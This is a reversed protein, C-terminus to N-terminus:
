SPADTAAVRATAPLLYRAGPEELFPRCPACEIGWLNELITLRAEPRNLVHYVEGAAYILNPPVADRPQRLRAEALFLSTVRKENEM